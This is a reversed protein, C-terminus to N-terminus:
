LTGRKRRRSGKIVFIGFFIVVVAGAAILAIGGGSLATGVQDAGDTNVASGSAGESTEGSVVANEGEEDIIQGDYRTFYLYTGDLRDDYSWGNDGDAFTLNQAANPQGFMHLPSLTAESLTGGHVVKMLYGSEPALIPKGAREDKTQYLALWQKGAMGNVDGPNGNNDRVSKYTVYSTEQERNTSMDVISKPIPLHDRHYYQYLAVANVVIDAVAVLIMAVAIGKILGNLVTNTTNGSAAAKYIENMAERADKDGEKAARAINNLVEKSDRYLSKSGKILEVTRDSFRYFSYTKMVDYAEQKLLTSCTAYLISATAAGVLLFAGVAGQVVWKKSGLIQDSWKAESGKSFELADSTVATGGNFIERDVGEYISRVEEKKQQDMINEVTKQAEKLDEKQEANMNKKTDNLKGKEYDNIMTASFAQNILSYLSVTTDFGAFQGAQLCSAMPYLKCLNDGSIESKDQAFFDLLTKGEYKYGALSTAMALEQEYIMGEPTKLNNEKWTKLQEETMSEVNNAKEYAKINDLHGKLDDWDDAIVTAREQYKADMNKKALSDDGNFAGKVKDYFRDYSGVMEMRDLWSRVGSECALSLEQQIFLVVSGNAQLLIDTLKDADEEKEPNLEALLNGLLKGSDDEKFGNLLDRAEIATKVNNNLNEQYGKIQIKLNKVLDKYADKQEKLIEEYAGESYNGKENMVAIDTVAEKVDETTTYCLFVGVPDKFHGVAYLNLDEEVVHWDGDTQSKCWKEADEKKGSQEIFLKFEKIYKISKAAAEAKETKVFQMPSVLALTFVLMVAVMRKFWTSKM